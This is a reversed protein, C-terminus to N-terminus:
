APSLTPAVSSHHPIRGRDWNDIAWQLLTSCNNEATLEAPPSHKLFELAAVLNSFAQENKVPTAKTQKSLKDGDKGLALPTHGYQPLEMGLLLLIYRQRSTSDLLDYGRVVHTIGQFHDDIAVALQYAFLGDKRKLIFDGCISLPNHQPGLIIDEFNEAANIQSKNLQDTMLRVATASSADPTQRRCHGDYKGQLSLIRQRICSCQYIYPSLQHLADAYDNLRSSQYLIDRDWLLHHAELSRIISDAAGAEERPPDLDEM